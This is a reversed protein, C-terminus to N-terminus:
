DRDRCIRRDIVVWEDLVVSCLLQEYIFVFLGCAVCSNSAPMIVFPSELRIVWIHTPAAFL